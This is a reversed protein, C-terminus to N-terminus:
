ATNAQVARRRAVLWVPLGLALVAAGALAGKGTYNLAAHLMYASSACFLLPLLPHLPARWAGEAAGDRNRLMIVAFGTLMLFLWFVPATYEVMATFGKRAATGAGILALALAGQLLHAKVPGQARADWQGLRGFLAVDRGLAYISRAGTFLTANLTTLAAIVILGALMAAGPAGALAKMYDAGVADSGRMGAPGLVKLYAANLALYLAAVLITTLVLVRLPTRRTDRLEATFYAAENWGGYTLMVFIMAFGIAAAADQPAASAGSPPAAPAGAVLGSLAALTAAAILAVALGLQLKASIRTGRVNLATLGAVALAAYLSPGHAGLPALRQAYDGLVFAVAAAAGTQVVALRGWGFLFATGPGYARRLYHYEGGADPWASGLEAYCLAGILMVLGGAAWLGLILAPDDIRLAVLAPAKFAGIGVVMGVTLAVAHRPALAGQAPANEPISTM